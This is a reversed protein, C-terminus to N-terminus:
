QSRCANTLSGKKGLLAVRVSELEELDSAGGIRELGEIRLADLEEVIGSM